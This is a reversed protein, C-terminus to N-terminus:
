FADEDRNPWLQEFTELVVPTDEGAPRGESAFARIHADRWYALSRDGEGEVWAFAEDVEGFPRVEVKVDRIVCIPEGRGDLVVSLAGVSPVPEPEEGPPPDEYWSLLSTTARKPGDRVLMGLEDAMAADNGFAWASYPGDIGTAEVFSRWFAEIAPTTM